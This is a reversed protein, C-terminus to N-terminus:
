ERCGDGPAPASLAQEAEVVLRRAETRSVHLINGIEVMTLRHVRRLVLAQRAAAPLSHARRSELAVLIEEPGPADSPIVDEWETTEEPQYWEWFSEDDDYIPVEPPKGELSVGAM